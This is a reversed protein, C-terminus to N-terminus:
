KEKIISNNILMIEKESRADWTLFIEKAKEQANARIERKLEKNNIINLIYAAMSSINKGNFGYSDDTIFESLSSNEDLSVVVAGACFSEIFVNGLNSFDYMMLTALSNTYYNLLENKGLLGAYSVNERVGLNESLELISNYYEEDDIHGSFILNIPKDIKKNIISLLEVALHQRKWPSIRAPYFLNTTQTEENISITPFSIGNFWFNLQYKPNPAIIKSVEDGKTGDNTILLFDKKAKFAFYELPHKIMSKLVGDKKLDYFMFTGYLRQGVPIRFLNAWFVAISGLSGQAYIFDYKNSKIQKIISKSMRLISRLREFNGSSNFRVIKVEGTTVVSTCVTEAASEKDAGILLDVVIKKEKLKLLPHLFAPMGFAEKNGNIIIDRLGNWLPTVYLIRM